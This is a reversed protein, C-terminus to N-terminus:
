LSKKRTAWNNGFHWPMSITKCQRTSIAREGTTGGSKVKEWRLKEALALAERAYKLGEDTSIASSEYSLKNLLLVKNTDEAAKAVESKLSDILAYGQKQAPSVTANLLWFLMIVPMFSTANKMTLSKSHRSTQFDFGAFFADPM